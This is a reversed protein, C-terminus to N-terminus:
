IKGIKKLFEFIIKDKNYIADHLNNIEIEKQYLKVNVMHMLSQKDKLENNLKHADAAQENIKVNKQFLIKELEYNTKNKEHITVNKEHIESNKDWIAKELEHIKLDKEWIKFQLNHIEFDNQMLRGCLEPLQLEIDMFEIEDKFSFPKKILSLNSNYYPDGQKLVNKWKSLFKSKENFFRIRKKLSNEYGRTLSEHHYLQAYPTFVVLYGKQRIKLCLDIDNYAHTFNEDFGGIKEFLSKKTLMCAATVASLNQITYARNMYGPFNKPLRYHAHDAIGRAGIIVGGHQITNDPFYLLAGICGVDQRQGFELMAEIWESCIVETDNNLFIIYESDSEKVGYNNIASFNFEEDFKLIKINRDNEISKFYEFTLPEVSRNDIIIIDYDPYSSKNIISQICTKLANSNDKTSIIISVKPYSKLKYKIRFTNQIIGNLVEADDGIRKIYDQLAKKNNESLSQQKGSHYLIKPIHVINNTVELLKLRLDYSNGFALSFDIKELINKKVLLLNGIYNTSRIFDPSWDPKFLPEYRIGPKLIKDEDTYIIEINSSEKNLIKAAEYLANPHIEDNEGIFAIFEAIIKSFLNKYSIERVNFITINKSLQTTRIFALHDDYSLFSVIYIEWYPYIQNMISTMASLNDKNTTIFTIICFKPLYNFASINNLAEEKQEGFEESLTIFDSYSAIESKIANIWNKKKLIYEQRADFLLNIDFSYLNDEDSKVEFNRSLSFNPNYYPDGNVFIDNWKERLLSIENLLKAKNCSEYGEKTLDGNYYLKIYPNYVLLLNKDRIKLCLDIDLFNESFNEDFGGIADFTQKKLCLCLVSLSSFNNILKARGMYGIENELLFNNCGGAAGGLGIIIGAHEIMGDPSVLMPGCAGVDDRQAFELLSEIWDPTKVETNSDLFILYESNTKSVAYNNILSFNFDGDYKLIKIKPNTILKDFYKLTEKEDSQNDVIIIEFNKYSSKSFISNVCKKLIEAMNKIPIIISVSPYSKLVYRIHYCGLGIGDFVEGELNIRNIHEKLAKKASEFAYMKSELNYATSSESMRWHYLVKPIHFINKTIESVRLVLDYDQSGEFGQRFGGIEDLIKKRIIVFHCIYNNSRLYDPSFDPKYDPSFFEGDISIKDEDSYIFDFNKNINLVKVIELLASPDLEDDHDLLGIFDGTALSLAENSNQAIGKNESLFRVKIREDQGQYSSLLTKIYPKSSNGDAICLEFNGYQQHLVSEIALKLWEEAVNYVPMIISILPQYDFKM